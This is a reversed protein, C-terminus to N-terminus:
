ISSWISVIYLNNSALMFIDIYRRAGAAIFIKNKNSIIIQKRRDALKIKVIHEQM